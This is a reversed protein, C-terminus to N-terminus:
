ILGFLGLCCVVNLIVVIKSYMYTNYVNQSLALIDCSNESYVRIKSM